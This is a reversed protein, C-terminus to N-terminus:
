EDLLSPASADAHARSPSGCPWRWKPGSPWISSPDGASTSSSAHSPAPSPPQTSSCPPVPTILSCGVDFTENVTFRYPAQKDLCGKGIATQGRRLTVIGGTGPTTKDDVRIACVRRPTGDPVDLEVGITRVVNKTNPAASEPIRVTGPLYVFSTKGAGVSTFSRVSPPAAAVGRPASQM